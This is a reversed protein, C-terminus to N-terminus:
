LREHLTTGRHKGHCSCDPSLGHIGPEEEELELHTLLLIMIASFLLLVAIRKM